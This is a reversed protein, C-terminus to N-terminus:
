RCSSQKNPRNMINRLVRKFGTRKLTTQSFLANFQPEDLNRWDEDTMSKLVPNLSFDSCNHPEAKRNYPCVDQCVDCGFIWNGTQGIEDATFDPKQEITQYAICKRADIVGPMVIAKTPCADMCLTCNGCHELSAIDPELELNTIISGIFFFSGKERNILLGNKGIWGLGCKMAWPKDMFSGSDVTTVTQYPGLINIFAAIRKLKEMVVTHYDRGLAYKAIRFTSDVPQEPPYYNFLGTIVTKAGDLLLRPDARKEQSNALWTMEANYSLGIWQKLQESENQLFAARATGAMYFGEDHFRSIISAKLHSNENLNM